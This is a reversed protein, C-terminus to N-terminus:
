SADGRKVPTMDYYTGDPGIGIRCPFVPRDKAFTKAATEDLFFVQPGTRGYERVYFGDRVEFQTQITKNTM